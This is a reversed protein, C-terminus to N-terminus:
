AVWRSEAEREGRDFGGRRDFQRVQLLGLLVM